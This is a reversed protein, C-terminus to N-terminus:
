LSLKCGAYYTRPRTPGYLYGAPRDTGVGLDEQYANTINDIGAYLAVNNGGYPLDYKVKVGYVIFDDTKVFEGEEGEDEKFVNTKGIYQASLDLEAKKWKLQLMSAGHINPMKNMYQDGADPMDADQVTLANSWSIMNGYEAMFEFTGGYVRTTGEANRRYYYVASNTSEVNDYDIFMADEISTYFGGVNVDFDFKGAKINYGLDTSYSISKEEKLDDSNVIVHQTSTDGALGIEIHYDEDFVQPAVFGTSVTARWRLSKLPKLIASARPSFVWEDLKSHKDARLGVITEFLDYNANYQAYMGVDNHEDNIEREISANKDVVSDYSYEFGAQILNNKDIAFGFDTGAVQFLNDTTGNNQLNEALQEDTSPESNMPGYYTKRATNAFGYYVSYNFFDNVTHSLKFDGSARNSDIQECIGSKEPVLDFSNGGRRFEEVGFANYTLEMGEIINFFGGVGISTSKLEPLDSYSDDNGDWSDQDKKSGYVTLGTKGDNSVYSADVNAVWTPNSFGEIFEQRYEVNAGNTKPKQTIVNIVGGIAGPGYLASGGGRVIEIRDIMSAPAQQLFYVGALSSISPFGNMLIQTYNGGLGNLAVTNAACNQCNNEVMLGVEGKLAEFVTDAGKAEIRDRSIVETKVPATRMLKATKTGTVVVKEAERNDVPVAGSTSDQVEFAFLSLSPMIMFLVILAKKSFLTEM